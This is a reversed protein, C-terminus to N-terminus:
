HLLGYIFLVSSICAVGFAVGLSGMAERLARRDNYPTYTEPQYFAITMRVFVPNWWGPGPPPNPTPGRQDYLQITYYGRVLPKSAPVDSVHWVASTGLGDMTAITYTNSQFDVAALTLNVPRVKLSTFQWVFTVNERPDIRYLPNVSKSSTPTLFTVGAGAGDSFSASTPLGALSNATANPNNPQPNNTPQSGNVSASGSPLGSTLATGNSPQQSGSPLQSGSPGPTGSSQQSGPSNQSGSSAPTNSPTPTANGTPTANNPTQEQAQPVRKELDNESPIANTLATLVVIVTLLLAVFRAYPRVM